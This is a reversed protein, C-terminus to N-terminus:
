AAPQSECLVDQFIPVHRRAPATPASAAAVVQAGLRSACGSTFLGGRCVVGRSAAGRSAAGSLELRIPLESASCVRSCSRMRLNAKDPGPVDRYSCTHGAPRSPRLRFEHPQDPAFLASNKDRRGAFHGASADVKAPILFAPNFPYFLTPNGARDATRHSSFVRSRDDGPRPVGKATRVAVGCLLAACDGRPTFNDTSVPQEGPRPPWRLGPRVDPGCYLLLLSSFLLWIGLRRCGPARRRLICRRPGRLRLSRACCAATAM